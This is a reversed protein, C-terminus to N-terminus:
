SAEAKCHALLKNTGLPGAAVVVGHATLTQRNKVRWSGTRDNTIRYGTSGGAGDIPKIDTVTREPIIDVGLREAFWLYNKPLTNKANERCGIMCQGCEICGARDPGEGGCYPDKVTVGPPGFFVGVPTPVSDSAGVEKAVESMVEDGVNRRPYQTVGLMREAEAYYKDLNESAGSVQQWDQQFKSTARYLTQAYVLS